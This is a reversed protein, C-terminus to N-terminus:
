FLPFFPTSTGHLPTNKDPECVCNVYAGALLLEIVTQLHGNYVACYLGTKGSFFPFSSYIQKGGFNGLNIVKRYKEETLLSQVEENRGEWAANCLKQILQDPGSVVHSFV